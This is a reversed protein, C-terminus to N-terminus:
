GRRTRNKGRSKLRNKWEGTGTGELYYKKVESRTGAGADALYKDLRIKKM